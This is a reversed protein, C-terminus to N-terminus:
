NIPWKVVPSVESPNIPRQRNLLPFSAQEGEVNTQEAESSSYEVPLRIGQEECTKSLIDFLEILCFADLAAYVIQTQRLPRREWASMQERKDLPLGLFTEVLSSLNVRFKRKGDDKRFLEPHRSSLRVCITRLDFLKPCQAFSVTRFVAIDNKLRDFDHQISFGLKIIAPSFLVDRFLMWDDETLTSRLVVFDLLFCQTRTAMQLLCISQLNSTSQGVLDPHWEGDIGVIDSNRLVAMCVLFATKTAIVHISGEPLNLLHFSPVIEETLDEMEIATRGRWEHINWQTLLQGLASLRNCHSLEDLIFPRLQHPNRNVLDHLVLEKWAEYGMSGEVFRKHNMASIAKKVREVEDKEQDM